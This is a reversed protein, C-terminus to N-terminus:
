IVDDLKTAAGGTKRDIVKKAVHDVVEAAAAAAKRKGLIPKLVGRLLKRIM